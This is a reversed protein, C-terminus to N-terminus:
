FWQSVLAGTGVPTPADWGIAGAVPPHPGEWPSAVPAVNTLSYALAWGAAPGPYPSSLGNVLLLCYCAPELPLLVFARRRM